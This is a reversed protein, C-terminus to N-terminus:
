IYQNAQNQLDELTPPPTATPQTPVPSTFDQIFSANDAIVIIIGSAPLKNNLIFVKLLNELLEKNVLDFDHILEPVFRFELINPLYPSYIQFKEKQLYIVGTKAQM